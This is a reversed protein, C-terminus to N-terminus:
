ESPTSLSKLFENIPILLCYLGVSELFNLDPLQPLLITIYSIALGIISTVAIVNLAIKFKDLNTM